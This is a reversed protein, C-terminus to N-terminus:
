APKVEATPVCPTSTAPASGAALRRLGGGAADVRYVGVSRPPLGSETREFVLRTHDPSWSPRELLTQPFYPPSVRAALQRDGTGDARITWLDGNYIWAIRTGDHSWAPLLNCCRPSNTVVAFRRGSVALAAPSTVKTLLRSGRATVRYIGAAARRGYSCLEGAHCDAYFLMVNGDAALPLGGFVPDVWDPNGSDIDLYTDKRSRARPARRSATLASVMYYTNGADMIEQWLLRGDASVAVPNLLLCRECGRRRGLRLSTPRRGPLALVHVSKARRIWAIHQGNHALAVVPGPVTALTKPQGAEGGTRAAATAGFALTFAVAVLLGRSVCRNDRAEAKREVWAGGSRRLTSRVM